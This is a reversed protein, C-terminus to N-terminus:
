CRETRQRARVSTIKRSRKPASRTGPETRDSAARVRNRRAAGNGHSVSPRSRRVEEPSLTRNISSDCSDVSQALPRDVPQISIQEVVAAIEASDVWSVFVVDAHHRAYEM